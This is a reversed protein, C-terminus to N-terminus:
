RSFSPNIEELRELKEQLNKHKLDHPYPKFHLLETCKEANGHKLYCDKWAKMKETHEQVRPLSWRYFRYDAYIFSLSLFLGYSLNMWKRKNFSFLSFAAFGISVHPVYRSSQTIAFGFCWRDLLTAAIFLASYGIILVPALDRSSQYQKVNKYMVTLTFGMILIFVIWSIITEQYRIVLGNLVMGKFFKLYYAFNVPSANACNMANYNATLLYAALSLGATAGIGIWWRRLNDPHKIIMLLSFGLLCVSVFFGNGTFTLFPTLCIILIFRWYAMPGRLLTVLILLLFFILEHLTINPNNLFIGYQTLSFFVLPIYIDTVRLSGAYKVKLWTFLLANIIAFVAVMFAIALNNYDSIELVSKFLPYGLGIRHPGLRTLFGSILDHPYLSTTLYGWQDNFFLDAAYKNVFYLLRITLLVFIGWYFVNGWNKRVGPMM